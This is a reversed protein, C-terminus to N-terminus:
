LGLFRAPVRCRIVPPVPMIVAVDVEVEEDADVGGAKENLVIVRVGDIRGVLIRVVSEFWRSLEDEV